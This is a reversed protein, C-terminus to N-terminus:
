PSRGALIPTVPCYKAERELYPQRRGARSAAATPDEIEYTSSGKNRNQKKNGQVRAM